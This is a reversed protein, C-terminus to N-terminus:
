YNYIAFQCDLSVIIKVVYGGFWVLLIIINNILQKNNIIM